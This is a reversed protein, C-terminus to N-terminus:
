IIYREVITAIDMVKTNNETEAMLAAEGFMLHCFPCSTIITRPSMENLEEIRKLSIKKGKEQEKWMHGGGAGCCFSDNHNHPFESINNFISNLVMRPEDYIKNYRGLYCPDHYVIKDKSLQEQFKLRGNSILDFILKTHHVVKFKGGFDPYEKKITNYCHPCGTLIFDFSLKKLERINELALKQFFGEDGIRRVFDGCCKERTGLVAFNIGASKLIGSIARATEMATEDFSATCGLWYLCDYTEGEIAEKLNLNVARKNWARGWPNFDKKVRKLVTKHGNDFKNEYVRNRRLEIVADLPRNSVPCVEVCRGCTTCSLLGEPDFGRGSMENKVGGKQNSGDSNLLAENIGLVLTKPSLAKDTLHAPCNEQCRGCHTCAFGELLQKWTFDGARAAGFSEETDFDVSEITGTPAFSQFFVNFPSFLPHRHNSYPAYVVFGLLIVYQIWWIVHFIFVKFERNVNLRDFLDAVEKSVPSQVTIFGLNVRLGALSFYCGMLLFVFCAVVLFKGSDFSPGLRSPKLFTRRVVVAAVALLLCLGAIDLICFYYYAYTNDAMTGSIGFVDGLFFFILYYVFFVLSGWFILLHGLGAFDNPRINKINSWQGPVHIAVAKLRSGIRNISGIGKGKAILGLLTVLKRGFIGMCLLFLTWFLIHEIISLEM